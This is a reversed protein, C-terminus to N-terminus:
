NRQRSICRLVSQHCVRTHSKLPFRLCTNIMPHSSVSQVSLQKKKKKGPDLVANIDFHEHIARNHNKLLLLSALNKM